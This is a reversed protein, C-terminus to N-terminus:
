ESFALGDTVFHRIFISPNKKLKMLMTNKWYIKMIKMEAKENWSKIELVILVQLERKQLLAVIKWVQKGRFFALFDDYNNIAITEPNKIKAAFSFEYICLYKNQLIFYTDKCKHLYNQAFSSLSSQVSLTNNERKKRKLWRKPPLMKSKINLM